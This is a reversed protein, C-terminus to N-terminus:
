DSKEHGAQQEAVGDSQQPYEGEDVRKVEHVVHVPETGAQASDAGPIKCEECRGAALIENGENGKQSKSGEEAEQREVKGIGASKQAVGAAMQDTIQQGDQRDQRM